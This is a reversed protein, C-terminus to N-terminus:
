AEVDCEDEDSIVFLFNPICFIGVHAKDIMLNGCRAVVSIIIEEPQQHHAPHLVLGFMVEERLNGKVTKGVAFLDDSLFKGAEVFGEYETGDNSQHL